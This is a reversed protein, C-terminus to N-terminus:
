VLNAGAMQPFPLHCSSPLRIQKAHVLYPCPIHQSLVFILSLWPLWHSRLGKLEINLWYAFWDDRFVFCVCYWSVMWWLKCWLTRIAMYIGHMSRHSNRSMKKNMMYIIFPFTAWHWTWGRCWIMHVFSFVCGLTVPWAYLKCRPVQLGIGPSALSTYPIIQM